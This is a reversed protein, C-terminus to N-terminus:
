RNRRALEAILKILEPLDVPKSIHVDFGSDRVRKQEELSVYGTLAIAPVGGGDAEPFERIKKILEHGDMGPMGLDSILVDPKFIAFSHLAEVANPATMIQARGDELIFKLMERSDAEDDVILIRIGRLDAPAAADSGAVRRGTEAETKQSQLLPLM